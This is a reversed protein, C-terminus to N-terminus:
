NLDTMFPWNQWITKTFFSPLATLLLFYFLKKHLWNPSFMDFFHYITKTRIAMHRCTQWFFLNILPQPFLSTLFHKSIKGSIPWACLFHKWINRQFPGRPTEELFFNWFKKISILQTQDSRLDPWFGNRLKILYNWTRAKWFNGSFLNLICDPELRSTPSCVPHM